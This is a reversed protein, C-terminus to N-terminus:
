WKRWARMSSAHSWCCRACASCLSPRPMSRTWCATCGLAWLPLLSLARQRRGHRATRRRAPAICAPASSRLQQDHQKGELMQCNCGSGQGAAARSCRTGVRKGVAAAPVAELGSWGRVQEEEEQQRTYDALVVDVLSHLLPLLLRWDYRQRGTLATEALVGRCAADLPPRQNAPLSCCPAPHRPPKLTTSWYRVGAHKYLAYVQLLLPCGLPAQVTKTGAHLTRSRRSQM